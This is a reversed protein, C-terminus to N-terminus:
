SKKKKGGSNEGRRHGRNNEGIIEDQPKKTATNQGDPPFWLGQSILLAPNTKCSTTIPDPAWSCLASHTLWLLETVSPYKVQSTSVSSYFWGCLCFSKAPKLNHFVQFSSIWWAANVPLDWGAMSKYEFLRRGIFLARSSRCGQECPKFVTASNTSEATKSMQSPFIPTNKLPFFILM